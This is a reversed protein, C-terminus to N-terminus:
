NFIIHLLQQILLYGGISIGTIFISTRKSKVIKNTILLALYLFVFFILFQPLFHDNGSLWRALDFGSWFIWQIIVAVYYKMVKDENRKFFGLIIMHLNDIFSLYTFPAFHQLLYFLPKGM